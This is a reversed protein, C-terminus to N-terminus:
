QFGAIFRGNSLVDQREQLRAVGGVHSNRRLKALLHLASHDYHQPANCLELALLRM